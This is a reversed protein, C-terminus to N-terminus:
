SIRIDFNAVLVNSANFIQINRWNSGKSSASIITRWGAASNTGNITQPPNAVLAPGFFAVQVNVGNIPVIIELSGALTGQSYLLVVAGASTSGGGSTDIGPRSIGQARERVEDASPPSPV